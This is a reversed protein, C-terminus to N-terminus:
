CGLPQPLVNSASRHLRLSVRVEGRTDGSIHIFGGNVVVNRSSVPERDDPVDVMELREDQM